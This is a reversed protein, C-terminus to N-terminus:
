LPKVWVGLFRQDRSGPDAESPRFGASAGLRLALGGRARDLPVEVDREEGPAMRVDEKWSGAELTVRNEVPGNRLRLRAADAPADPQIVVTSHRAGGVWFAEPEPYSRDDLFFVRTGAYQVARRAADATLREGPTFIRLPVITLAQVTRRAEEDGGLFLANVPLPFTLEIPPAPLAVTKLAFQDRAIGAMVWGRAEAPVALQYRGAPLPPVAFMPPIDRGGSRVTPSRTMEIRIRGALQRSPVRSWRDVELALRRPHRALADLLQMQSRVSARGTTGELAWVTTSAAMAAAALLAAALTPLWGRERLRGTREAARLVLWVLVAAAVWVAAARLLPLDTERAWSPAAATLDAARGMWELWLAPFGRTNYALRGREAGVVIGSALATAVLASCALVRSARGHMMTWAAAAPVAFLPLVPACFRAPASWGGWWMAFHTVTLLYPIVVFLLELAVRRSARRTLMGGLGACAVAVVPAYALLGFRQDFLLGLLGGPVFRFSGIEGAGYPASPNPTGYIAIFFGVWSVASVAPVALFAVAKGAPNKTRALRLLVLAGLGAALVAFRSHLWPLAALAAGHLLWPRTGADGSQSEGDARLLAWVGTLALVGGAGDPYVTFSQFIATVPLTVAAWGFWAAGTRHTALWAVHWVLASGAAALLVLFVVVAPYGGLAFAPAVLVPLGPAHVSYIRGDRGRKQVHPPLDGAYYARYDGRRHVDEITLDGDLLLSQAIVLYHPEDGGPLVPSVRWASAGFLVCALLAAALRPRRMGVAAPGLASVLAPVLMLLLVALWLVLALPGLWLLFAPPVPLPLWPLLAFGLLAVPRISGGSWQWGYIAAGAAVSLLVAAASVPLVALRAGGESAFGVTGQCLWAALAALLAAGHPAFRLM